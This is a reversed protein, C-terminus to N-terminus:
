LATVLSPWRAEGMWLTPIVAALATWSRLPPHNVWSSSHSSHEGLGLSLLHCLHQHVPPPLLLYWRIQQRGPPFGAVRTSCSGEQGETPFSFGFTDHLWGCLASRPLPLALSLSAPPSLLRRTHPAAPAGVAPLPNTPTSVYPASPVFRSQVQPGAPRQWPPEKDQLGWCRDLCAFREAGHCSWLSKPGHSPPSPVFLEQLLSLSNSTLSIGLGAPPAPLYPSGTAIAPKILAPLPLSKLPPKEPCDAAFSAGRYWSGSTFRASSM